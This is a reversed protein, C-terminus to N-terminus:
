GPSSDRAPPDAPAASQRRKQCQPLRRLGIFCRGGALEVFVEEVQFHGSRQLFSLVLANAQRQDACHLGARKRKGRQRHRNGTAVCEIGADLIAPFEPMQYYGVLTNGLDFLIADYRAM